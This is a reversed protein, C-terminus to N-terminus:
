SGVRVVEAGGVKWVPRLGASADARPGADDVPRHNMDIDDDDAPVSGPFTIEKAVSTTLYLRCFSLIRAM